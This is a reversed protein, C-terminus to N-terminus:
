QANSQALWRIAWTEVAVLLALAAVITAPNWIVSKPDLIASWFHLSSRMRAILDDDITNELGAKVTHLNVSGHQANEDRFRELAHRQVARILRARLRGRIMGDHASKDIAEQVAVALMTEVKVLPMSAAEDTTKDLSQHMHDLLILLVSRALRLRGLGEIAAASTAQKMGLFIGLAVSEVLAVAIGAAGYFWPQARLVYGSAAALIVGAIAFVIFTAIFARIAVGTVAAITKGLSSLDINM